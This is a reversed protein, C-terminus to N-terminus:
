RRPLDEGNTIVHGGDVAFRCHFDGSAIVVGVGALATRVAAVVARSAFGEQLELLKVRVPRRALDVPSVGLDVALRNLLEAYVVRLM